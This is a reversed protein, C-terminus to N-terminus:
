YSKNLIKFGDPVGNKTGIYFKNGDQAVTENFMSTKIKNGGETTYEDLDKIYDSWMNRVRDMTQSSSNYDGMIMDRSADLAVQSRVVGIRAVRETNMDSLRKNLYNFEPRISINRVVAEYTGKYKDFM